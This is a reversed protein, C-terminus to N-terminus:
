KRKDLRTISRPGGRSSDTVPTSAGRHMGGAPYGSPSAARRRDCAHDVGRELATVVVLTGTPSGPWAASALPAVPPEPM